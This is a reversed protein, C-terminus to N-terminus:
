NLPIIKANEIQRKEGKLNNIVTSGTLVLWVHIVSQYISWREFVKQADNIFIHEERARM